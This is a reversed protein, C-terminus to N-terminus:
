GPLYCQHVARRWRCQAGWLVSCAGYLLPWPYINSHSSFWFIMTINSGNQIFLYLCMLNTFSICYMSMIDIDAWVKLCSWVILAIGKKLFFYCLSSSLTGSFTYCAKPDSWVKHVRSLVHIMHFLSIEPSEQVTKTRAVWFPLMPDENIIPKWPYTQFASELVVVKDDGINQRRLMKLSATLIPVVLSWIRGKERGEVYEKWQQQCEPTNNFFSGVCLLM